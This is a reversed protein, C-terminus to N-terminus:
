ATPKWIKRKSFIHDARAQLKDLLAYFAERDNKPLVIMFEHEMEAIIQEIQANVRKGRASLAMVVRRGDGPDSNRTALGQEALRDVIRTIKDMELTTHSNIQSASLPGFAGLVTIVKWAHAPRGFNSVYADAIARNIQTALLSMRYFTRHKLDLRITGIAM